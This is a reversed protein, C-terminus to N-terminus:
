KLHEAMFDSVKLGCECECEDNDFYIWSWHGNYMYPDGNEDTFEGTTDLVHETTSVHLTEDTKGAAKLREMTPIEHLTPDVTTDDESYVFYMPLDVLSAIQEDSITDDPVAECIPVVCAYADPRSMSLVMTMYGGNSCGCVCIKDAGVKEAYTDIFEELAKTYFSNTDAKIAGDNFNGGKGDSDMWFTPSQPAVVHAGGLADQFGAESLAVVKNGLVTIWPDTHDTGGEGMGHLWVILRNSEEEPDFYAYRLTVGDSTDYSDLKWGAEEASNESTSVDFDSAIALEPISSGEAKTIILEYPDCWTNFQTAMTFLLPSDGDNPACELEVEIVTGDSSLTASKITRPVEGEIVPFGEAAWDTMQKSEVISLDDATIADIPADLTITVKDVGPGWDYGQIHTTYSGTIADGTAEATEETTEEASTATDASQESGACASLFAAAGVTATAGVFSRRTTNINM